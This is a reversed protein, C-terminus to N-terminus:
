QDLVKYAFINKFSITQPVSLMQSHKRETEPSAGYLAATQNDAQQGRGMLWMFLLPQNALLSSYRKLARPKYKNWYRLLKQRLNQYRQANSPPCSSTSENRELAEPNAFLNKIRGYWLGSKRQSYWATGNQQTVPHHLGNNETYGTAHVAWASMMAALRCAKSSWVVPVLPTNAGPYASPSRLKIWICVGTCWVGRCCVRLRLRDSNKTPGHLQLGAQEETLRQKHQIVAVM